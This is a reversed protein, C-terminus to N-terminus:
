RYKESWLHPMNHMGLTFNTEIFNIFNEALFINHTRNGNASQRKPISPRYEEPIEIPSAGFYYFQESVLIFQGSLDRKMGDIGHNRNEIQVFGEQSNPKYINDGAIGINKEFTNTPKKCAFKPNNWYEVYDVKETVKMLYILKENGVSDKNLMSSTFGAIWDGVKKTKRIQPKCNALTLMGHFPNPAFGTDHTQKYCFLRINM